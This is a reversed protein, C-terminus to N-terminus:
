VVHLYVYMCHIHIYLITRHIGHACVRSCLDVGSKISRTCKASSTHIHTNRSGRRSSATTNLPGKNFHWDAMRVSDSCAFAATRSKDWWGEEGKSVECHSFVQHIRIKETWGAKNKGREQERQQQREELVFCSSSFSAPSFLYGWKSVNYM